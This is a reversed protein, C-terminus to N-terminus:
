SWFRIDTPFSCTSVRYGKSRFGTAGSRQEFALKEKPQHKVRQRCLRLSVCLANTTITHEQSRLVCLVCRIVSRSVACVSRMSVLSTIVARGAPRATDLWSFLFLMARCGHIADTGDQTTSGRTARASETTGSGVSRGHYRLMRNYQHNLTSGRCIKVTVSSNSALHTLRSLASRVGYEAVDLCVGRRRRILMVSM